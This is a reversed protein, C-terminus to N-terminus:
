RPQDLGLGPVLLPIDAAMVTGTRMRLGATRSSAECAQLTVPQGGQKQLPSLTSELCVPVLLAMFLSDPDM